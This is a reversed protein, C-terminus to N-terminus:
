YSQLFHDFGSHDSLLLYVLVAHGSYQETTTCSIWHQAIFALRTVNQIRKTDLIKTPLTVYRVFIILLATFCGYLFLAQLTKSICCDM